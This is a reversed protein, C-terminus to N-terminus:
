APLGLARLVHLRSSAISRLAGAAWFHFLGLSPEPSKTIEPPSLTREDYRRRVGSKDMLVWYQIQNEASESDM